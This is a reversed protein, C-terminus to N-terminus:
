KIPLEDKSEGSIHDQQHIGFKVIQINKKDYKLDPRSGKSKVHRFNHVVIEHEYIRQGTIECEVYRMGDNDEKCRENFIERYLKKYSM